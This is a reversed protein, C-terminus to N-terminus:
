LKESQYEDHKVWEGKDLTYYRILKLVQYEDSSFAIQLNLEQFSLLSTGNRIIQEHFWEKLKLGEDENIFGGNIVM